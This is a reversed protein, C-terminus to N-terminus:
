KIIATTSPFYFPYFTNDFKVKGHKFHYHHDGGSDESM